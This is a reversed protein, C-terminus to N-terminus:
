SRETRSATECLLEAIAEGNHYPKDKLVLLGDNDRVLASSADVNGDIILLRCMEIDGLQAALRLPNDEDVSYRVGDNSIQWLM